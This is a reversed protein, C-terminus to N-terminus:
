RAYPRKNQTLFGQAIEDVLTHYKGWSRYVSLAWDRILAKCEDETTAQHIMDTTTIVGRELPKPPILREDPREKKYANLYASLLPSKSYDWSYNLQLILHLRTLHFHNNWRGHIEPHQLTHADVSLFRFLHNENRSFDILRFGTSFLEVCEHVGGSTHAGCFQCKGAALLIVGNKEAQDIYDQM